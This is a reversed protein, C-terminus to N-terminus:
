MVEISLIDRRSSDRTNRMIEGLVLISSSHLTCPTSYLPRGPGPKVLCYMPRGMKSISRDRSLNGFPDLTIGKVIM